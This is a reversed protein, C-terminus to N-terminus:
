KNYSKEVYDLLIGLRKKQNELETKLNITDKLTIRFSENEIEEMGFFKGLSFNTGEKYSNKGTMYRPYETTTKPPQIKLKKCYLYYEKDSEHFKPDFHLYSSNFKQYDKAKTIQNKVGM